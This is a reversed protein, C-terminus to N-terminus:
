YRKPFVVKANALEPPWVIVRKRGQVQTMFGKQKINVGKEDYKFPGGICYFEESHLINKIKEHDLTGAKEIAQELIQGAMYPWAGDPIAIKEFRDLYKKGFEKAGKYNLDSIWYGTECIGETFDGIGYIFEKSYTPGINVMYFKPKIGLEIMQKTAYISSPMINLLFLADPNLARVKTLVSSFDTCGLPYQEMMAIDFGAKRLAKELSDKIALPFLHNEYLIATTKIQDKVTGLYDSFPAVNTVTLPATEFLYKFGRAFIQEAAASGMVLPFKHKETVATVAFHNASGWPPLLLDVKDVTILREYLKVCTSTDSRDDYTMLKVPLRKGIDKVFIGGKANVDDVWLLMGNHNEKGEGSFKGTAQIVAGVLIETKESATGIVPTFLVLVFGWLFVKMIISKM